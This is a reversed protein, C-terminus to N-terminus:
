NKELKTPQRTRGKGSKDANFDKDYPADELRTSERASDKRHIIIQECVLSFAEAIGLGTVASTEVYFCNIDLM